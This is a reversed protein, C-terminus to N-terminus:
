GDRCGGFIDLDCDLTWMKTWLTITVKIWSSYSHLLQLWPPPPWLTFAGRQVLIAPLQKSILRRALVEMSVAEAFQQCLFQQCLFQQSRATLTALHLLISLLRHLRGTWWPPVATLRRRWHGCTLYITDETLQAHMDSSPWRRAPTVLEVMKTLLQM